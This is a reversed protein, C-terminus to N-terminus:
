HQHAAVPEVYTPEPAVFAFYGSLISVAAHVWTDAEFLPLTGWVTDAQPLFGMVTAAGNLLFMVMCYYRASALRASALIGVLGLFIIVGDHVANVPFVGFLYGYSTTIDVRPASAPAATYLAPVFAVAGLIAYAIGLGLSYLRTEM